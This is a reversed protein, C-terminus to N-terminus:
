ANEKYKALEAQIEQLQQKLEDRERGLEATEALSEFASKEAREAREVLEHRQRSLELERNSPGILKRFFHALGEGPSRTHSAVFRDDSEEVNLEAFEPQSLFEQLQTDLSTAFSKLSQDISEHQLITDILIKFKRAEQYGNTDTEFEIKM